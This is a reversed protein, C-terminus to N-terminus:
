FSQTTGSNCRFRAIQCEHGTLQRAGPEVLGTKHCLLVGHLRASSPRSCRATRPYDNSLWRHRNISLRCQAEDAKTESGDQDPPEGPIHMPATQKRVRHGTEDPRVGCNRGHRSRRRARRALLRQDIRLGRHSQRSRWEVGHRWQHSRGLRRKSFIEALQDLRWRAPALVRGRKIRALEARQHIPSDHGIGTGAAVLIPLFASLENLGRRQQTKRRGATENCSIKRLGLRNAACNRCAVRDTVCEVEEGSRFNIGLVGLRNEHRERFM